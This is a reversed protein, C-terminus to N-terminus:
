PPLTIRQVIVLVSCILFLARPFKQVVVVCLVRLGLEPFRNGFVRRAWFTFLGDRNVRGRLPLAPRKVYM